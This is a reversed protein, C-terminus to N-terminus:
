IKKLSTAYSDRSQSFDYLQIHGWLDSKGGLLFALPATTRMFLHITRGSIKAEQFIHDSISEAIDLLDSPKYIEAEKQVLYVKSYAISEKELFSEVKQLIRSDETRMYSIIYVVDGNEEANETHVTVPLEIKKSRETCGSFDFSTIQKGSYLQLKKGSPKQEIDGYIYGLMFAISLHCNLCIRLTKEGNKDLKKMIWEFDKEIYGWTKEWLSINPIEKGDEGLHQLAFLNWNYDKHWYALNSGRKLTQVYVGFDEQATNITEEIINRKIRNHIINKLDEEWNEKHVDLQSHYKKDTINKGIDIIYYCCKKEAREKRYIEELEVQSFPANIYNDSWLIVAYKASRFLKRLKEEFEEARSLEEENRRDWFFEDQFINGLEEAAKTAIQYQEEDKNAYSLALLYKFEKEM